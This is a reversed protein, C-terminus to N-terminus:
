RWLIAVKIEGYKYDRRRNYYTENVSVDHDSEIVIIANKSLLDNKIFLSIVEEYRGEKYPPDLFLIDFVKKDKIFENIASEDNMFLVEANKIGISSLNKKTTEIAIKNQDVFTMFSCGRSLGEIGMAGSGSYLDLGRYNTLDGVASFIAERIRDKTPRIHAADNPYEIIRHRYIGGVIRMM